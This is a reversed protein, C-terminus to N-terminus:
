RAITCRRAKSGRPCKQCTGRSGGGAQRNTVWPEDSPGSPIMFISKGEWEETEAHVETARAAQNERRAGASKTTSHAAHPPFTSESGDGAGAGSAGEDVGARRMSEAIRVLVAGLQPAGCPCTSGYM